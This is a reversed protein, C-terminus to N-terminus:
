VMSECFVDLKESFPVDPALFVISVIGFLLAAHRPFRGFPNEVGALTFVIGCGAYLGLFIVLPLFAMAGLRQKEKM